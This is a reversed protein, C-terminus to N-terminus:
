PRRRRTKITMSFRMFFGAFSPRFNIKKYSDQSINYVKNEAIKIYTKNRGAQYKINIILDFKLHQSNIKGSLFFVCRFVLFKSKVAWPELARLGLKFENIHDRCLSNNVDNLAYTNLVQNMILGQKMNLKVPKRIKEQLENEAIEEKDTGREM